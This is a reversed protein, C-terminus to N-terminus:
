LRQLRENLIICKKNDIDVAVLRGDSLFDLGTLYPKVEDDGTKQLDVSVLM